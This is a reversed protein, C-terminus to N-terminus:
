VISRGGDVVLVTGNIYDSEALFVAASAIDDPSGWRGLATLSAIKKAEEADMDPPKLMPGPAIANVLVRPALDRALAKTLTVLGGKSACYPAHDKYPRFASWDAINVIRGGGASAAMRLGLEKSLTFPAKLNTSYFLDMDEERAKPLPTAYFASASNILIQIDPEFSTVAKLMKQISKTKSLDAQVPECRVGLARIYQATKAADDKSLHYHLLINVGREALRVAIQRGIRKAAGTILATKEKIDM